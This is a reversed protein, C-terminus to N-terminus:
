FASLDVSKVGKMNSVTVEEANWNEVHVTYDAKHLYNHSLGAYYMENPLNDGWKVIGPTMSKGTIQPLSISKGNFTIKLTSVGGEIPMKDSEQKMSIVETADTFLVLGSDSLGLRFIYKNGSEIKIVPLNVQYDNGDIVFTAVINSGKSVNPLSFTQPIKESWGKEEIIANSKIELNGNKKNTIAGTEVNLDGSVALDEGKISISTLKGAGSYASKRINFALVALAHNMVLTPQPETFSALMGKGSYLYDVQSKADVPIAAPNTNESNYPYAAYLFAKEGSKLKIEPNISWIGAKAIAKFSGSGINEAELTNYEKAFLNMVSGDGLTTVVSRTYVDTKFTVTKSTETPTEPEVPPNVPSDDSDSCSFMAFTLGFALFYKNLTM